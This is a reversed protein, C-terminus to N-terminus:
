CDTLRGFSRGRSRMKQTTSERRQGFQLDASAMTCGSVTLPLAQEKNRKGIVRLVMQKSDIATIPLTVAENIRLGYAYILAFCGRYVPKQLKAILRRCDEDSRVDPM